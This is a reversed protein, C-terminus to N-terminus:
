LKEIKMKADKMKQMKLKEEMIVIMNQEKYQFNRDVLGQVKVKDNKLPLLNKTVIMIKGTRDKITFSLLDILQLSSIVRGKVKVNKNHYKEPSQYIKKIPTACGQIILIFIFCVSITKIYSIM